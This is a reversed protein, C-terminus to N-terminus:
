SPNIEKGKPMYTWGKIDMESVFGGYMPHVINWAGEGNILMYYAEHVTHYPFLSPVYILIPVREDPKKSTPFWEIVEWIM